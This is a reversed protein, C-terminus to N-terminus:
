AKALLSVLRAKVIYQLCEHTEINNKNYQAPLTKFLFIEQQM